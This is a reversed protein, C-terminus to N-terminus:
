RQYGRADIPGPPHRAQSAQKIAGGRARPLSIAALTPCVAKWQEQDQCYMCIGCRLCREFAEAVLRFRAQLILDVMALERGDLTWTEVWGHTFAFSLWSRDEEVLAASVFRSTWSIAVMIPQSARACPNDVSFAPM